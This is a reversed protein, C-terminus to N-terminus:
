RLCFRDKIMKYLSILLTFIVITKWIQFICDYYSDWCVIEYNIKLFIFGVIDFMLVLFALRFWGRCTTAQSLQQHFDRSALIDRQSLSDYVLLSVQVWSQQQDLLFFWSFRLSYYKFIRFEFMWNSVNWNWYKWYEMIWIRYKVFRLNFLYHQPLNIFM